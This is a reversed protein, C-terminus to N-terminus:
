KGICFRRFIRDLVDDTVTAGVVKGLEDIAQRLDIAVLEDGAAVALTEAASQLAEGAQVLSDRCRAATGAPLDGDAPQERIVAAIAAGLEALGAGSTASTAIMGTPGNALDCKTWVRIAPGSRAPVMTPSTDFSACLLIVDARASQELRQSQARDQIPTAAPEIGATDILEVTLGDCTCLASLYDRTTGAAPSVLARSEGVLANFLRSKGANPPGVLVVRPHGEARDRTTLRHALTVVEAASRALSETLEARGLPDVDPEDVFDLNAELHALVDLLRDRLRGIPRALGGALQELAAALQAPNAADIVGLVAEAATLDLRGNLFARLTFEGPEAARAGRTLCHGLVLGVLPPSGLTHIEAVPQGTYTRRGPWLVISAPLPTRLGEMRLAGERREARAPLHRAGDGSFGSLAIALAEPGSLRVLGRFGPGPPSAVAAITDNADLM